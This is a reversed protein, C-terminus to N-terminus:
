KKCVRAQIYLYSALGTRYICRVALEVSTTQARAAIYISEISRSVM